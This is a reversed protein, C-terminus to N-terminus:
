IMDFPAPEGVILGPENKFGIRDTDFIWRHVYVVYHLSYIVEAADVIDDIVCVSHERLMHNLLQVADKLSSCTVASFGPECDTLILPHLIFYAASRRNRRFFNRLFHCLQKLFIVPVTFLFKLVDDCKMVFKFSNM